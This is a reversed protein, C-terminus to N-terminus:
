GTERKMPNGVVGSLMAGGTGHKAERVGGSFSPISKKLGCESRRCSSDFVLRGPNEIM